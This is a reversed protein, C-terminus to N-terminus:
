AAGCSLSVVQNFHSQPFLAPSTTEFVTNLRTIELIQTVREAANMLKLQIGKDKFEKRLQLLAGLGAADILSVCTLDLILVRINTLDETAGRLAALESIVLRGQLCLVAIAGLKKPNVKLM